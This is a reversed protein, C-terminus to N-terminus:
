LHGLYQKNSVFSLRNGYERIIRAKLKSRYRTDGVGLGYVEHLIAMSVAQKGDTIQRSIIDKVAQFDGTASLEVDDNETSTQPESDQFNRSFACTFSRYCSLHYHLEKAILDKYKNAAYFDLMKEKAASKITMEADYTVVKQPIEDKKNRQRRRYKCIFCTTPFLGISMSSPSGLPSPSATSSPSGITNQSRIPRPLDFTLLRKSTRAEEEAENGKTESSLVLTFRFCFTSMFTRKFFRTGILTNM